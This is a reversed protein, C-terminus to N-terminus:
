RTPLEALQRAHRRVWRELEGVPVLQGCPIVKLEPQIRREFHNLSVGLSAAAEKRTLTYRPVPQVPRQSRRAPALRPRSVIAGRGWTAGHQVLEQHDPSRAPPRM